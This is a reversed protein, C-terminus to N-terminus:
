YPILIRIRGMRDLYFFFDLLPIKKRQVTILVAEDAVGWFGSHRLISPDFIPSNRSRCQSDSARIMRSSRMKYTRAPEFVPAAVPLIIQVRIGGPRFTGIPIWFVALIIFQSAQSDARHNSPPLCLLLHSRVPDHASRQDIRFLDSVSLECEEGSPFLCPLFFIWILLFFHSILM